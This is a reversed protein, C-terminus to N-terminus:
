PAKGARPVPVLRDSGYAEIIEQEAMEAPSLLARGPGAETEYEVLFSIGGLSACEPGPWILVIRALAATEAM